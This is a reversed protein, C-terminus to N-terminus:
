GIRAAVERTREIFLRAIPSPERHRLTAIATPEGWAPLPVPLAKVEARGPWLALLTMPMVTLYRGSALLGQRLNLSGTLLLRPPLPLGCSEFAATVPSGPATEAHSLIWLQGHLEDLTVRRRAAWPSRRGAVVALREHFLPEFAVDPDRMTTWPRLLVVECLRKRLFHDLLVPPDGSEVKFAIRPHSRHMRDIVAPVLSAALSEGAGIALEGAGPESLFRIENAGQNLEDFIARGRRVLAHGYVTPEVGKRTRDFLRVGLADELEAIAKSVAGQSMHLAEAAKRMGGAQAVAMLTDLDRLRLRRRLRDATRATPRPSEM